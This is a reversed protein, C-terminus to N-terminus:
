GNLILKKCSILIKSFEVTITFMYEEVFLQGGMSYIDILEFLDADETIKQFIIAKKLLSRENFKEAFVWVRQHM